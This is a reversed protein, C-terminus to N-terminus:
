QHAPPSSLISHLTALQGITAEQREAMLHSLLKYLELVLSPHESEAEQIRSFPLHHLRCYDLAVQRGPRRMRFFEMTGAVWGVGLRALRFTETTKPTTTATIATTTTPVTSGRRTATQGTERELKLVGAEIFFLGREM